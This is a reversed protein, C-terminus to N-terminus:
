RPSVSRASDTMEHGPYDPPKPARRWPTEPASTGKPWICPSSARITLGGVANSSISVRFDDEGHRASVALYEPRADSIDQYGNANWYRYIVEVVGEPRRSPLGEISQSAHVALRGTAGYDLPDFCEQSDVRAAAESGVEGALEAIALQIHREAMETAEDETVTSVFYWGLGSLLFVPAIIIIAAVGILVIYRSDASKRSIM